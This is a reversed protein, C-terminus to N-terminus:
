TALQRVQGAGGPVVEGAGLGLAAGAQHALKEVHATVHGGPAAVATRSVSVTGVALLLPLLTANMASSFLLAWAMRLM